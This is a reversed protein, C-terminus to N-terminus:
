KNGLKQRWFDGFEKWGKKTSITEWIVNL